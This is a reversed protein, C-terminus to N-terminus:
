VDERFGHIGDVRLSRRANRDVMFVNLVGTPDYGGDPHREWWSIEQKGTLPDPRIERWAREGRPNTYDVFLRKM